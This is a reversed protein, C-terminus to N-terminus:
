LQTQDRQSLGYKTAIGNWLGSANKKAATAEGSARDGQAAQQTRRAHGGRCVKGSKAQDAWQAYHDDASASAQWAATLSSALDGHGPLKDITLDKLETVLGRRQDAAGRLDTAAQDLNQCSKIDNVARIVAARSSNSDALLKDLAEAQPKAPDAAGDAPSESAQSSASAAVTSDDGSPTDDGGSMLAGAGLGLVACGVVVGAILPLRSSKRRGGARGPPAHSARQQPEYPAAPQQRYPQPARGADFPPLQQTSAGGQGPGGPGDTRFLSDFEAPPQREGPAGPRVGFPAGPPAAPTDQAPIPAIYQTADADSGGPASLASPLFQTAEAASEPPPLGPGHGQGPGQPVPAIYQTADADGPAPVPPLYQTADASGPPAEAPLPRGQSFPDGQHFQGGHQYPQAPPLPAGYSQGSEQQGYPQGGEPQGYPQGGGQSGYSGPAAGQSADYGPQEQHGDQPGWPQGWPQGGTPAAQDAVAGPIWPESGDGPLVVGEHAPRAAHRREDGQGSHTM